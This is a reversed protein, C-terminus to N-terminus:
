LFMDYCSVHEVKNGFLIFVVLSALGETLVYSKYPSCIM